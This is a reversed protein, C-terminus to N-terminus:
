RKRQERPNRDDHHAQMKQASEPEGQKIALGVEVMHCFQFRGASVQVGYGSAHIWYFGTWGTVITAVMLLVIVAMGGWKITKRIRPHPKM